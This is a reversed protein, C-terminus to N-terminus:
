IEEFVTIKVHDPGSFSFGRRDTCPDEFEPETKIGNARVRDRVAAYRSTYFSLHQEEPMPVSSGFRFEAQSRGLQLLIVEGEEERDKLRAVLRYGLVLIYFDMIDEPDSARLVTRSVAISSRFPYLSEKGTTRRWVRYKRLTKKWAPHTLMYAFSIYLYEGIFGGLTNAIMDDLDYLGRRSMLQLNEVMFSILFCALVPRIRVRERFWRFVYPLLYGLPIFVMINLYFQILDEPRVLKVNRFAEAPGETFLRRFVDSFGHDTSFADRLDQLPAVHVTYNTMVTRSFFVLYAFVCLYVLIGATLLRRRIRLLRDADPNASLGGTLSVGLKACIKRDAWPLLLVMAAVMATVGLVTALNNVDDASM